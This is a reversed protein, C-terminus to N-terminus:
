EIYINYPLRMQAGDMKTISILHDVYPNILKNNVLVNKVSAEAGFDEMIQQFPDKQEPLEKVYYDELGAKDAAIRVADNLGGMVDVLGIRMADRGSWVRGQGIKDVEEKTMGRGEAVHAIFTDYVDEISEKIVAREEAKLPRFPSGLDAHDATLVTEVNIGIKEEVLEKVQFLLGFVGISGTITNPSAVITDALCSVYYGGSAAVDGMSAIIPKVAKTLEVERLIVESTLASGGPSNVRLVVAKVKDDERAKRLAKAVNETGIETVSGKGSGIEGQAYVVAVKGSESILKKKPPKPAHTYKSLSIFELDKDEAIDVKTKLEAIVQDYYRAGDVLNYEVADDINKVLMEDAMKQLEDVQINRSVGVKMLMENWLSGLYEQIQERNAESMKNDLFPEVASKYKGHRIVQPDIGMKELTKKFFMIQAMLGQMGVMGEPNIYVQDAITALYYAKQSYYNGYSVIFKGSDKLTELANRIEAVTAFGASVNDLYLFAGKINPDSQARKINKLIQNLSQTNKPKLSGPQLNEFPNKPARDMIPGDLTIKLISNPKVKIVKDQDVMSSVVGVMILIGIIFAIIFALFSAFFYKFFSKM